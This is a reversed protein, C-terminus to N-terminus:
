GPSRLSAVFAARDFSAFFASGVVLTDAGAHRLAAANALTVGGDVAIRPSLGRRVLEGRLRRVREVTEPLFSQGGWGPQVSMVLVADVYELLPYLTEIPTGPNLALGRHVGATRLAGLVGTPDRAAEVHIVVEAAGAAVFAPCM